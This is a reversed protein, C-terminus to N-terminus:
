DSSEVENVVENHGGTQADRPDPPEHDALNFVGFGLKEAGAQFESISKHICIPISTDIDLFDVTSWDSM